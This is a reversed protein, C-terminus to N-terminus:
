VASGSPEGPSTPGAVTSPAGDVGAEIAVPAPRRLHLVVGTLLAVTGVCAVVLGSGVSAFQSTSIHVVDYVVVAACCLGAALTGYAWGKSRPRRIALTFGLGAAIALILTLNGDGSTGSVTLGFPGSVWPMLSGVLLAAIGGYGIWMITQPSRLNM